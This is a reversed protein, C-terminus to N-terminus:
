YNVYIFGLLADPFDPDNLQLVYYYTGVPVVKDQRLLGTNPIGNWFGDDNGGDFVLNGQRSYIKLDFNSFVDLLGTIELVDNLSDGNPSIGQPVFPKCNETAVLFSATTFCIENELRVFIEQPDSSNMFQEPDDIPNLNSIADSESTFYTITDNPDTAIFGNQETLDFTAMDFGEDCELINPLGMIPPISNFGVTIEFENNTDNLELVLGAGTGDDDVVALFTFTNPIEPALTIIVEGPENGGIPIVEQTASQSVLRGDIYFAIPTAAPLPATANTNFVTYAITLDRLRCANLDNTIQITADPLPCDLVEIAFSGVSFCNTNSARVWITQPNEINEYNEPDDIPNTDDQADNESLHFTISDANTIQQTAETLDFLETGFVDCQELNELRSVDPFVKLSFPLIADNNTEDLENVVGTGTGDDDVSARLSFDAPVEVPLTINISGSESGNIPLPMTTTTQGILLDDAYFAIPTSSPLTATSNSNFVTYEIEIDRDGCLDGGAVTDIAITADPLEVNLVTIVNNIIVLDQGSTLLIEASTDGPQINDEIDYFDLDMNYFDANNTFTNTGNFQNNSPNLPENSLTNGNIQLTESIALSEDGEWALFGIKAGSDDLVTIDTLEILLETNAQSVAEFGDFLIVQNLPLNSDEYIVNVAWGAYNTTNGCYNELVDRVDLQSLIYNGNGTAQIIDTVDAYAGFYDFGESLNFQFTREATVMTGAFSVEFDGTGVGSWYLHAAVIEQGPQLTLTALSSTLIECPTVGGTNEGTNMTNGFALYDYRGNFQLFQSIEQATLNFCCLTGLILIINRM